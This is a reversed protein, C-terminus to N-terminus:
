KFKNPINFQPNVVHVAFFVNEIPFLLVALRHEHCNSNYYNKRKGKSM